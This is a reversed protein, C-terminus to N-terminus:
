LESLIQRRKAQYEADTIMGQAKLEDLQKLRTQATNGGGVATGTADVPVPAGRSDVPVVRVAAAPMWTGHDISEAISNGAAQACSNLQREDSEGFRIWFWGASKRKRAVSFTGLVTGDAKRIEGDAACSAGGAGLGILARAARNGGDLRTVRGSVITDFGGVNDAELVTADRKRKNLALAVQDAVARGIPEAPGEYRSVATTEASTVFPV